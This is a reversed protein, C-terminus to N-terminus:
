EGKSEEAREPSGVLFYNTHGRCSLGWARGRDHHVDVRSLQPVWLDLEVVCIIGGDELNLRVPTNGPSFM